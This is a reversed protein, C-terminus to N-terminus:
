NLPLESKGNKEFEQLIREFSEGSYVITNKM